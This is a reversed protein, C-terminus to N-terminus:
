LVARVLSPRIVLNQCYSVKIKRQTMSTKSMSMHHDLMGIVQSVRVQITANNEFDM